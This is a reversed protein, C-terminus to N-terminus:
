RLSTGGATTLPWMQTQAYEHLADRVFAAGEVDHYTTAFRPDDVYMHGLDQVM